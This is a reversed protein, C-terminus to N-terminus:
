ANASINKLEVSRKGDVELLVHTACVVAGGLACHESIIENLLIQAQADLATFPEDLMWLTKDSLLWRAMAVRRQQGQSMHGCPQFALAHIGLRQLAQSARTDDFTSGELAAFWSLNELPTMLEDLGLRHGQYVFATYSYQGDVSLHLGCLARLLTSKGIGNPGLIEMCDGAGLELTLPEFLVNDDRKVTFESLSLM